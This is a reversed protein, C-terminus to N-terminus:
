SVSPTVPVGPLEIPTSERDEDPHWPGDDEGGDPAPDVVPATTTTDDDDPNNGCACLGMALMALILLIALLKKM